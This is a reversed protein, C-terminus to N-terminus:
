ARQTPIIDAAHPIALFSADKGYHAIADQIGDEITRYPTLFMKKAEDESILSCALGLKHNTMARAYMYAKATLEATFGENVFKDIVEQPTKAEILLKAFKGAGDSAEACLIIQGGKRCALEACACAKQAQHLNIDRPYGGASVIVVDAKAPLEYSWISKCVEVGKLHAANLEGAVTAIMEKEANDITNVIFDVGAMRAASLAEEHFPNGDLWGMSPVPPRIPFSHHITLAKLGVIGPLLSKRGGSYGASHHPTIKGTLIKVDANMYDKNVSVPIGLKTVGIDVLTDDDECNHHVVRFRKLLSEGFMGALESDTNPRHTGYAVILSIDSEKLGASTLENAIEEVLLGGSYPRTIDNVVIAATKKGRAIESLRKSEIPNAMARRVEAREDPVGKVKKPAVTAILNPVNVKVKGKGVPFEVETYTM